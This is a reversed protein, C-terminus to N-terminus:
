AGLKGLLKMKQALNAAMAFRTARVDMSGIIEQTHIELLATLHIRQDASIGQLLAKATLKSALDISAKKNLPDSQSDEGLSTAGYLGSQDHGSTDAQDEKAFLEVIPTCPPRWKQPEWEEPATSVANLVIRGLMERAGADSLLLAELKDPHYDPEVLSENESGVSSFTAMHHESTVALGRGPLWMAATIPPQSERMMGGFQWVEAGTTRALTNNLVHIDVRDRLAIAINLGGADCVNWAVDIIKEDSHLIKNTLEFEPWAGAAARWMGVVGADGETGYLVAFRESSYPVIKAVNTNPSLIECDPPDLTCVTEFRYSESESASADTAAPAPAPATAMMKEIAADRAGAPMRKLAAAMTTRKPEPFHAVAREIISDDTEVVEEAGKTLLRVSIKANAHGVYFTVPCKTADTEGTSVVALLDGHVTWSHSASPPAAFTYNSDEELDESVLCETSYANGGGSLTIRWALLKPPITFGPPRDGPVEDIGIIIFDSEGDGRFAGVAILSTASFNVDGSAVEQELKRPTIQGPVVEYLCTSNDQGVIVIDHGPLWCVSDRQQLRSMNLLDARWSLAAVQQSAFTLMPDVVSWFVLEQERVGCAMTSKSNLLMGKIGQAYLGCRDYNEIAMNPTPQKPNSPASPAIEWMHLQGDAGHGVLVGLALKADANDVALSHLGLLPVDGQSHCQIASEYETVTLSMQTQKSALGAVAWIVGTGDKRLLMIHRMENSMEPMIGIPTDRVPESASECRQPSLWSVAASGIDIPTDPWTAAAYHSVNSGSRSQLWVRLLGDACTVLLASPGAAKSWSFDLVLHPFTLEESQFIVAAPQDPSILSKIPVPRFWIKLDRESEGRTAFSSGDASCGVHHLPTDVNTRWICFSDDFTYVHEFRRSWRKLEDKFAIKEESDSGDEDLVDREPHQTPSTHWLALESGATVLMETGGDSMWSLALVSGSLRLLACLKWNFPCAHRLASTNPVPEYIFVHTGGCVALKYSKVSWSIASVTEADIPIEQLTSMRQNALSICVVNRSGHAIVPIGYPMSCAVANSATNAGGAFLQDRNNGAM